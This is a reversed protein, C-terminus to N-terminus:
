DNYKVTFCVDMFPIYLVHNTKNRETYSRFGMLIGPYFGFSMEWTKM